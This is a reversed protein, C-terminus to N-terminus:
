RQSSRPAPLPIFQEFHCPDAKEHEGKCVLLSGDEDCEQVSWRRWPAHRMEDREKTLRENEARLRRIEVAFTKELPMYVYGPTDPNLAHHLHAEDRETWAATESVPPPTM